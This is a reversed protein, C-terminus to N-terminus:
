FAPKLGGHASSGTSMREKFIQNASSPTRELIQRTLQDYRTFEGMKKEHGSASEGPLLSLIRSRNRQFFSSIKRDTAFPFYSLPKRLAEINNVMEMPNKRSVGHRLMYERQRIASLIWKRLEIHLPMVSLKPQFCISVRRSM